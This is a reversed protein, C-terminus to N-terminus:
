TSKALDILENWITDYEVEIQIYRSATNIKNVSQVSLAYFQQESPNTGYTGRTTSVALTGPKGFSEKLTWKQTLVDRKSYGNGTVKSNKSPSREQCAEISGSTAADDNVWLCMTMPESPNNLTVATIKIKSAVVTYHDYLAEMQNFYYPQHPAGQQATTYMGNVSWYYTTQAGNLSKIEVTDVYRHKLRMMKPFGQSVGKTIAVSGYQQKAKRNSSKKSGKRAKKSTTLSTTGPM